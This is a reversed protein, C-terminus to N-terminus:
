ILLEVPEPSTTSSPAHHGASATTSHSQQPSPSSAHKSAPQSATSPAPATANSPSCTKAPRSSRSSENGSQPSTLATEPNTKAAPGCSRQTSTPLSSNSSAAPM